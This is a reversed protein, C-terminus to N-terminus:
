AAEPRNVQAPTKGASKAISVLEPDGLIAKPDHGLPSYAVVHVGQSM